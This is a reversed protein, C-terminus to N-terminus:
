GSNPNTRSNDIFFETIDNNSDYKVSNVATDGQLIAKSLFGLYNDSSFLKVLLDEEESKRVLFDYYADNLFERLKSLGTM